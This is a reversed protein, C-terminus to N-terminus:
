INGAADLAIGDSGELLPHAVLVNSLCLTNAPFTSDCGRPSRVNGNRDFRVRWIAGRATDAVFLDGDRDFAVGNAVLPQPNAAASPQVTSAQRGVGAANAMPQIRFVEQCGTFAPECHVARPRL